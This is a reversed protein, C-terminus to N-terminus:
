KNVTVGDVWALENVADSHKQVYEIREKELKKEKNKGAIAKIKARRENNLSMLQESKQADTLAMNNRVETAKVTYSSNIYKVQRGLNDNLKAAKVIADRERELRAMNEQEVSYSKWTAQNTNDIEKLRNTKWDLRQQTFASDAVREREIRDTESQLRELRQEEWMQQKEQQSKNFAATARAERQAYSNKVKKTKKSQADAAFLSLAVVCTLLIKKM